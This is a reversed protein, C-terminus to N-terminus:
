IHNQRKSFIDKWCVCVCMYIIDHWKSTTYKNMINSYKKFILLVEKWSFSFSLKIILKQSHNESKLLVLCYAACVHMARSKEDQFTIEHHNFNNLQIYCLINNNLKIFNKNEVHFFVHLLNFAFVLYNLFSM